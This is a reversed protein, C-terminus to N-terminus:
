QAVGDQADLIPTPDQMREVSYLTLTNGWEFLYDSLSGEKKEENNDPNTASTDSGTNNDGPKIGANKELETEGAKKAEEKLKEIMDSYKNTIEPYEIKIGSTMMAKRVDKGHESRAFNNIEDAFKVFEEQSIAKATYEVTSVGIKYEGSLASQLMIKRALAEQEKESLAVGGQTAFEKLPYTVEETQPFIAALTETGPESVKLDEVLIKAKDEPSTKGPKTYKRKELFERFMNDVEYPKMEEFFMDANEVGEEYAVMIQERLPGKTDAKAKKEEFDKKAAEMAEMNRITEEIKPKVMLFAGLALIVVAVIIMLGIREQKSLKM